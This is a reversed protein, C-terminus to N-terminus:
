TVVVISAYAFLRTMITSSLPHTYWGKVCPSLRVALEDIDYSVKKLIGMEFSLRKFYQRAISVWAIVCTHTM